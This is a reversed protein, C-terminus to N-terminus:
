VFNYSVRNRTMGLHFSHALEHWVTSGWNGTSGTRASPSDLAVVPGFSVGLIGIGALGVTRVSFDAHSPYLEIRM